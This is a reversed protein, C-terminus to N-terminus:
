NGASSYTAPKGLINLPQPSMPSMGDLMPFDVYTKEGFFVTTRGGSPPPLVGPGGCAGMPVVPAFQRVVATACTLSTTQGSLAIGLQSGAPIVMDTPLLPVALHFKQEPVLPEYKAPDNRINFNYYGWNIPKWVDGTVNFVTVAVQGRPASHALDLHAWAEGSYRFEKELKPGVFSVYNQLQGPVSLSRVMADGNDVFAASGSGPAAGIANPALFYKTMAARTPPFNDEEHWIGFYDQIQARPEDMIGTEIGKLWYDFWRLLTLNWDGPGNKNGPGSPYAHGWQGLLMKTPVNHKQLEPIWPMLNHTKVNYDILGHVILVSVNDRVKDIYRTFNREEWYPDTTGTPATVVQSRQVDIVSPGRTIGNSSAGQNPCARTTYTQADEATTVPSSPDRTNVPVQELGVYYTNFAWGQPNIQVGRIFNYKYWESIAAIPVITKLHPSSAILAGQPATGDYSVGILGVNGNSWPQKAIENFLENYDQRERPGGIEFCGESFGTGRVSSGMVAYGRSTLNERLMRELGGGGKPLSSGFYPSLHVITPVKVGDPTVPRFVWNDLKIGDSTKVPFHQFVYEDFLPQSLIPDAASWVKDSKQGIKKAGASKSDAQPGDLCGAVMGLAVIIVGVKLVLKSDMSRGRELRPGPANLRQRRPPHRASGADFRGQPAALGPM